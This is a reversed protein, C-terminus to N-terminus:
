ISKITKMALSLERCAITINKQCVVASVASIGSISTGKFLATKELSIEGVAIVPIKVSQAIRRLFDTPIIRADPKSMTPFVPGVSLFDAGDKEAAIAEEITAAGVGIIKSEGLIKRAAIIPMDKKSLHVGQANIAMAIDIRNEIILPAAYRECVTKVSVALNYFDLGSNVNENLQVLTAGGDIAMKVAETLPISSMINGETIFCLSYDILKKM